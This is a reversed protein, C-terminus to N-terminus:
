FLVPVAVLGLFCSSMVQTERLHGVGRELCIELAQQHFVSRRGEGELQVFLAFNTNDQQWVTSHFM